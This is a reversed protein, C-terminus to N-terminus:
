FINQHSFVRLEKIKIRSKPSIAFFVEIPGRKKKRKKRYGREWPQGVKKINKTSQQGGLKEETVVTSDKKKQFQKM